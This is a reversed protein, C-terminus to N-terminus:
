NTLFHILHTGLIVALVYPDVFIEVLNSGEDIKLSCTIMLIHPCMRVLM